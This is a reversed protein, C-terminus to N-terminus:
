GVGLEGPWGQRLREDLELQLVFQRLQLEQGLGGAAFALLELVVPFGVAAVKRLQGDPAAGQADAVLGDFREAFLQAVGVLDFRGGVHFRALTSLVASVQQLRRRAGLEADPRGVQVFVDVGRGLATLRVAEAVQADRLAHEQGAALTHADQGVTNLQPQQDGIRGPGVRLHDEREIGVPLAAPFHGIREAQEQRQDARSPHLLNGFQDILGAQLLGADGLVQPVLGTEGNLSKNLLNQVVGRVHRQQLFSLSVRLRSLFSLSVRLRSLFSVSVRLRSLFSLSVRLRSLFSVSVRLRPSVPIRTDGRRGRGADGRGRGGADGRGGGGEGVDEPM